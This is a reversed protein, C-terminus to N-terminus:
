NRNGSHGQGADHPTTRRKTPPRNWVPARPLRRGGYTAKDPTDPASPAERDGAPALSGQSGSSLNNIFARILPAVYDASDMVFMHGGGSLVEIRADPVLRGLLLANASPYLCYYGYISPPSTLRDDLERTFSELERAFRGGYVLLAVRRAQAASCYRLPSALGGLTPMSGPVGRRRTGDRV